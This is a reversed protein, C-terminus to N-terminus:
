FDSSFSLPLRYRYKFSYGYIKGPTWKKKISQVATIIMDDYAKLGSSNELTVNEMKGEESVVFRVNVTVKGKGTTHFDSPDVRKSVEKRFANIGGEFVPLEILDDTTYGEKFNEFFADPYIFYQTAATTPVGNIKAAIWDNM